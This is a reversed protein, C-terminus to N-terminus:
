VSLLPVFFISIITGNFYKLLKISGKFHWQSILRISAQIAFQPIDDLVAASWCNVNVTVSVVSETETTVKDAWFLAFSYSCNFDFKLM